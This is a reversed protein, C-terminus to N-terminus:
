NNLRAHSASARHARAHLSTERVRTLVTPTVGVGFRNSRSVKRPILTKHNLYSM